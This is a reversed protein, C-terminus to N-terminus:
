KRSSRTPDRKPRQDVRYRHSDAESFAVPSIPLKVKWFGEASISEEYTAM